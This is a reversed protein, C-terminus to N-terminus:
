FEHLIVGTHSPITHLWSPRQLARQVDEYGCKYRDTLSEQSFEFDKCWLEYPPDRYQFRVVNLAMPRAACIEAAGPYSKLDQHVECMHRIMHRLKSVELFYNLVQKYRSAYVLDKKRAIVQEMTQPTQAENSFLNVVFCMIKGGVSGDFINALPTNSSIGGDWYNKGEICIAPFGPPLAGSAMIHEPTIEQNANDFHAVTGDEVCVASVTLRVKKQNLWDFDILKELTQKLSHTDYFSLEDVARNTQMWPNLIRPKFFGPQGYVIANQAALINKLARLEQSKTHMLGFSMQTAVTNWFENLRQARHKAPNGAIIAANIAGISTGIVWTPECGEDLLRECVGVQYAGLAGGGQLVYIIEDYGACPKNM